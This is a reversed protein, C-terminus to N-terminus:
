PAWFAPPQYLSKTCPPSTTAPALLLRASTCTDGAVWFGSTTLLVATSIPEPGDNSLVTQVGSTGAVFATSFTYVASVGSTQGTSPMSDSVVLYLLGNTSDLLPGDFNGGTVGIQATKIIGGTGGGITADVEKLTGFLSGVFIKGTGQDYVPDTLASNNSVLCPWIIATTSSMTEIPSSMTTGNFVGTFKHLYGVSDGAYLTDNAYDYFPSSLADDSTTDGNLLAFNLTTMCPAVCTPCDANSVATLTDPSALTGSNAAWRLIVLTAPTGGSNNQVFAVQSGDLSLTVSTVVRGGTNFAWYTSPTAGCLGGAGVYLNDFAVVSAQTMSGALSTNYVVFDTCSATGANFSFKAPYNGAGVTAGTGM